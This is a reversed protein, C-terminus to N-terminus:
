LRRIKRRETKSPPSNFDRDTSDERRQIEAASKGLAATGASSSAVALSSYVISHDGLKFSLHHPVFYSLPNNGEFTPPPTCPSLSGWALGSPLTERRACSSHWRIHTFFCCWAHWLTCMWYFNGVIVNMFLSCPRPSMWPCPSQRPTARLLCFSTVVDQRVSAGM